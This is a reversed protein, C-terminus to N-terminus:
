ALYDPNLNVARNFSILLTGSASVQRLSMILPPYIRGPVKVVKKPEWKGTMLSNAFAAGVSAAAAETQKAKL